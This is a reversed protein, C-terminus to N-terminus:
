QRRLAITIKVPKKTDFIKLAKENLTLERNQYMHTIIEKESPFVACSSCDPVLPASKHAPNTLVIDDLLPDGAFVIRALTIFGSDDGSIPMFADQADISKGNQSLTIRINEPLTKQGKESSSRWREFIAWDAYALANKFDSLSSESLFASKGDLWYYGKLNVLFLVKGRTKKLRAVFRLERKEPSLIVSNEENAGSSLNKEKLIQNSFFVLEGGDGDASGRIQRISLGPEFMRRALLVLAGLFVILLFIKLRM